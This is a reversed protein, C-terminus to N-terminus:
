AARYHNWIFAPTTSIRNLIHLVDTMLPRRNAISLRPVHIFLASSPWSAIDLFELVKFYLHNCVYNGANTSVETMCTGILLDQLDLNTTLTHTPTTGHLELNLSQRNEAMGFCIISRPQIETAKALVYCPALQYHVPLRRLMVVDSPFTPETAIADLLDDSSNSIQHAKWPRFSTLLLPQASGHHLGLPSRTVRAHSPLFM